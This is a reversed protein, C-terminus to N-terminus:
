VEIRIIKQIVFWGILHFIGGFSIILIGLPEKLLIGFYDNNIFYLYVGLAIPIITIIIGSLRGEATVTKVEDKIRLRGLVTEQMTELLEALNGGSKRQILLANLVMELTKDPLRAIMNEFAKELPIGYAVDQVTREFEPGIPDPMEKSILQMAQMFSFGARLSNAMIGLTESLQSVCRSLRKKRKYNVYFAPIMYGILFAIISVFINIGFLICILFCLVSIGIRIVYFDELKIPLGAETIKRKLKKNMPLGKILEGISTIISPTRYKKSKEETLEQENVSTHIYSRIRTEIKNTKSIRGIFMGVTVFFLTICLFVIVFFM